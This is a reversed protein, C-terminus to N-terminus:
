RDAFQAPDSLVEAVTVQPPPTQASVVNVSVNLRSAPAASSPTEPELEGRERSTGTENAIEAGSADEMQTRTVLADMSSTLAPGYNSLLEIGLYLLGASIVTAALLLTIIRKIM